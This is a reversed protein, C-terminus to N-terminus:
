TCRLRSCLRCIAQSVQVTGNEFAAAFINPNFPDFQVDRVSESFPEFTKSASEQVRIDQAL